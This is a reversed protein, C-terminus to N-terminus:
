SRSRPSLLTSLLDRSSAAYPSCGSCPSFWRWAFPALSACVCVAPILCSSDAYPDVATITATRPVNRLLTVEGFFQGAQLTAFVQACACAGCFCGVAFSTTWVARGSRASSRATRAATRPASRSAAWAWSTSSTTSARRRAARWWLKSRTLDCCDIVLSHCAPHLDHQPLSSSMRAFCPRQAASLVCRSSRLCRAPSGPLLCLVCPFGPGSSARVKPDYCEYSFMSCLLEFKSWPKNQVGFALCLLNWLEHATRPRHSSSATHTFPVVSSLALMLGCPSPHSHSHCSSFKPLRAEVINKHLFDISRLVNATRHTM